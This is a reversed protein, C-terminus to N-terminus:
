EGNKRKTLLFLPSDEFDLTSVIDGKPNITLLCCLSQSSINTFELPLKITHKVWTESEDIGNLMYLVITGCEFYVHGLLAVQGKTEVIRPTTEFFRLPWENLPFPIRRILKEDGVSFAVVECEWINVFYIVGDVCVNNGNAPLFNTCCSIERWSKDIWITFISYISRCGVVVKFAKHKKTTPDFGIAYYIM